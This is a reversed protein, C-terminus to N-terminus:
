VAILLYSYMDFDVNGVENCKAMEAEFAIPTCTKLDWISGPVDEVGKCVQKNINM